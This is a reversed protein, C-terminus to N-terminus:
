ERRRRREESGHCSGVLLDKHSTLRPAPRWRQYVSSGRRSGPARRKRLSAAKSLCCVLGSLLLFFFFLFLYLAEPCSAKKGGKVEDHGLMDNIKPINEYQLRQFFFFINKKRSHSAQLPTVEPRRGSFCRCESRLGPVGNRERQREGM